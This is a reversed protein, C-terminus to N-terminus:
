PNLKNGCYKCHKADSDHGERSCFPCVETTLDKSSVKGLEVTVIGTPVAIIGYGFIMILVAFMQGIPTSPSIDGYGVTTLTVVAWYIGRPISSFGHEPGEIVYMMSGVIVSITVVTFVFVTIKRRSSRMAQRLQDVEILYQTFKLVRFVRLVRLIRIVLLYQSGPIFLSLYTPLISFLDVLGFFSFVYGSARQVSIIRLIYEITFLITFFWELKIFLSGYELRLEAVSDLGVIIVSALISLMLFLDFFKGTGTDAEFIVEHLKNRFARQKSNSM